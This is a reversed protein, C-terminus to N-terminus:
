KYLPYIPQYMNKNVFKEIDKPINNQALGSVISEKIVNIAINSTIDRIHKLDPYINGKEIDNANVMSSLIEAAIIFMKDTVFKSQSLVVGLGIGPFIFMNNGQGPQKVIGNYNFRPFPSGSAFVAKGNSWKYAEEATCESKSTPNSLALIVPHNVHKSIENIIKKSFLGTQGSVGIIATPKVKKITQLLNLVTNENRAYKIKYDSINKNKTTILGKSDFVWFNKMIDKISKGTDLHIKYSVSDAIGVGASGAGILIIRNEELPIGTIRKTTLLGALAVAGTGQIDDNFCLFKNRYKNLLSFSHNVSFDEFQILASPWRNKIAIICEDIFNYYDDVVRKHKYGIYLPDNLLSKNNTGIDILIPLTSEPFIGGGATYLSLKGIPIGMGNAGLDGLGLIRSGDTLVIVKINNIPWNNIVSKIDGKDEYCLYMGRARRYIQSFDECAKGVTPTYVIPLLEELFDILIKFFLTENRDQLATLFIYKEIDDIKNHFNEMVKEVQVELPLSRPPVLGRIKLLKQEEKKFGTGKNFLPNHLIELGSKKM